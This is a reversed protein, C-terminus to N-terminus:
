DIPEKDQGPTNRASRTENLWRLAKERTRFFRAQDKPGGQPEGRLLNVCGLLRVLALSLLFHLTRPLVTAYKEFAIWNDDAVSQMYRRAAPTRNEYGEPMVHLVTSRGGLLDTLKFLVYFFQWAASEDVTPNVTRINIVGDELWFDHSGTRISKQGPDNRYGVYEQELTLAPKRGPEEDM